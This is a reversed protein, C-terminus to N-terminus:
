TFTGKIRDLMELSSKVVKLAQDAFVIRSNAINLNVIDAYLTAHTVMAVKWQASNIMHAERQGSDPINVHTITCSADAPVDPSFATAIPVTARQKTSEGGLMTLWLVESEGVKPAPGSTSVAKAIDGAVAQIAEIPESKLNLNIWIRDRARPVAPIIKEMVSLDPAEGGGTVAGRVLITEKREPTGDVTSVCTLLAQKNALLEKGVSGSNIKQTVEAMRSAAEKRYHVISGATEALMGNLWPTYDNQITDKALKIEGIRDAISMETTLAIPALLASAPDIPYDSQRLEAVALRLEYHLHKLRDRRSGENLWQKENGGFSELQRYEAEYLKQM